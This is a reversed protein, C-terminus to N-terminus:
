NTSHLLLLMLKKALHKIKESTAFIIGFYKRTYAYEAAKSRDAGSRLKGVTPFRGQM